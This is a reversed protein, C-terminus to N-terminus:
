ASLIELTSMSTSEFRDMMLLSLSVTLTIRVGSDAVGDMLEKVGKEWATPLSVEVPRIKDIM